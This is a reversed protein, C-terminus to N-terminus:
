TTSNSFAIAVDGIIDGETKLSTSRTLGEGIESCPEIPRGM